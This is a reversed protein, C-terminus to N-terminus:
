NAALMPAGAGISDSTNRRSHSGACSDGGGRGAAAIEAAAQRAAARIAAQLESGVSISLGGAGGGLRRSGGGGAGPAVSASYPRASASGVVMSRRGALPASMPTVTSRRLSAFFPDVYGAGDYVGLGLGPGERDSRSAVSAPKGLRKELSLSPESGVTVGKSLAPDPKFPSSFDPMNRAKFELTKRFDGVAM